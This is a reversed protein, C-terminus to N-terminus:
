NSKEAGPLFDRKSDKSNRHAPKAQLSAATRLVTGSINPDPRVIEEILCHRNSPCGSGTRLFFKKQGM